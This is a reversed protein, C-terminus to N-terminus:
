STGVEDPYYYAANTANHTMARGYRV